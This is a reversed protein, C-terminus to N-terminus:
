RLKANFKNDLENIINSMITNIEGDNLTKESSRFSLKFAVSKKDNGIQESRYIDFMEISELLIKSKSKICKTLEGITINEDVVIAIDRTVAPYKPLPKYKFIQNIYINFITNFDLCAIYCKTGINYNNQVIPHIEGIYGLTKDESIINASIGPHLFPYEETAIYEEKINLSSFMSEIIGKIDYFNIDGYMAITIKKDEDPLINNTKNYVNAIEYLYANKNRKNYNDSLSNLLGNITQIRMYKFDEGLPNSIIISNNICKDTNLLLKNFVKKSEFSYTMAENLGNSELINKIRDELSKKDSKKGMTNTSIIQTSPIKDYGYIRAIEEALDAMYEIDQRFTPIILEKNEKNVKFGLKRFINIMEDENLNIGILNNIKSVSYNISHENRKNPYIDIVGDVVTGINLEEILEITRSMAEEALNPDLDKEYKSSADTRLGLKKSTLRINTGYFNASEIIITKTNDNIKSNNGGMVGAIAIKKNDDCIMTMSDDLIREKNDLTIFKENNNANKVIIEKNELLDYDFAHLPQGIEIMVYNTIDVINSIPRIGITRLRDQIWKPSPGIKIDKIIKAIYRRCNQPNNIKVTLMKNIENGNYNLKKPSYKYEKNFTAAAERALGIISFCDQRNSTIEFEVFEDDLNLVSNINSGIEYDDKLIYIGDSPADLFDESTFGLENISCMMGNSVIGRLKGKKIKTGNPLMAGDLAVPVLQNEKINTASTIIDIIENGINVKCIQLKDANPHKEINIIKGVVVNSLNEDLKKFTEVKSGSITMADCFDKLECDIDVYDKLWKMSIDM